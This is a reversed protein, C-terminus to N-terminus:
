ASTGMEKFERGDWILLGELPNPALTDKPPFLCIATHPWCDKEAVAGWRKKHCYIGDRENPRSRMLDVCSFSHQLAHQLLGYYAASLGGLRLSYEEEPLHGFARASVDDKQVCCVVGAIWRDDRWVQLLFGRKVAKWLEALTRPYCSNAFRATVYPLYLREHFYAM